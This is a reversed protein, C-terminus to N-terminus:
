RPRAVPVMEASLLVPAGHRDVTHYLRYSVGKRFLLADAARITCSLGGLELTTVNRALSRAVHPM